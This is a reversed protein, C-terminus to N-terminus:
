YLGRFKINLKQPYGDLISKNDIIWYKDGRIVYTKNDYKYTFIMNISNPFGSWRRNTFKPFGKYISMTNDNFRYYLKGKFFYTKGDEGWTFVSDINNPIGKWVDRIKKPYGPYAKLLKDNFKWFNDGKFFYTSDDKKWTFVADINNPIDNWYDSIKKPYNSSVAQKRDDYLWYEDDKFFYTKKNFGWTFGTDVAMVSSRKNSTCLYVPKGGSGENINKSVLTYDPPCEQENQVKIDTIFNKKFKKKCLFLKNGGSGQNLNIPIQRFGDACEYNDENSVTNLEGIGSSGIGMKKCLYIYKGGSQDNLDKPIKQYGEPCKVSSRNGITMKLDLVGTNSLIYEKKKKRRQEEARRKQENLDSFTCYGYTKFTNDENISTACWGFKSSDNPEDSNRSEKSCKYQLEDNHIFPFICKGTKVNPNDVKKGYDNVNTSYVTKLKKGALGCQSCTFSKGVKGRDGMDGKLGKIGVKEISKKYNYFTFLINILNLEIILIYWAAIVQFMFNSNLKRYIVYVGISLILVILILTLIMKKVVM